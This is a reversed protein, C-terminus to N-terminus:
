FQWYQALIGHATLAPVRRSLFRLWYVSGLAHIAVTLGVVVVGVPIPRLM